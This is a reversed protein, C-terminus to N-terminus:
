RQNLPHKEFFEWMLESASIDTNIKGLNLRQEGTTMKGGPWTHGGDELTWLIVESGDKGKGYDTCVANGVRTVKIPKPSCGNHRIWTQLTQPLPELRLKSVSRPGIGGYYMANHDKLGHFDIISVPRKPYEGFYDVPLQCAVPGIAAIRDSLQSALRYSILAGNSLGGAYIRNKDTSFITALDDLLDRTYSVDDVDHKKAWGCCIGANFTLLKDKFIGTGAPYVVIFNNRDAVEDMGSDNRQQSPKGGGGHFMLVVPSAQEVRYGPPVHIEYYRQLGNSVIARAYDGPGYFGRRNRTKIWTLNVHVDENETDSSKQRKNQLLKKLVRGNPRQAFSHDCFGIYFSAIAILCTLLATLRSLYTFM